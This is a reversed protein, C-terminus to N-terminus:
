KRGSTNAASEYGTAEIIATATRSMAPYTMAATAPPPTDGVFTAKTASVSKQALQIHAQCARM